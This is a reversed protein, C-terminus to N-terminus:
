SDGGTGNMSVSVEHSGSTVLTDRPLRPVDDSRRVTIEEGGELYTVDLSGVRAVGEVSAVCEELKSLEPFEGFAWGHGEDGGSLPHLYGELAEVVRDKLMSISRAENTGVSCDVSLEAYNPGRVAIKPQPHEVLPAPARESVASRVRDKLETSPLPKERRANPVILLTVWGLAREGSADMGPECKVTALERCANMAVDEFDTATVARGRNRIQRPARDLVTSTSEADAGGDSPLPNEVGDVLPIPSRLESIAGAEVNGESGGGTTVTARVNDEGAPPIKGRQGNGFHVLGNTRDVTYHRDSAASDLFDSVARWNVWFREEGAPTRERRVRTPWRQGLEERESQSLTPSEDVWLDIDTVPAAPCEFTQDHSGDSSGLTADETTERNYAWQTNPYVGQVTPPERSASRGRDVEVADPGDGTPLGEREFEDGTVRARIWHATRGFRSTATTPEPVNLRVIGSETLGATGDRVELADWANRRPDVCYEWEIAPDFTRPYTTEALSLYLTIPGDRLDDDFGFYIAQGEVACAEFPEFGGLGAAVEDDYEGNNRALISEFREGDREYTIWVDGYGPPEPQNTMEGRTGDASIEFEPRGYNGSVLRVRLWHNDHGSVTTAELDDPVTFTVTGPERFTDTGDRELDLRSWGNGDWYEWSTEPPGGFVGAGSADERDDDVADADETSATGGDAALAPSFSVSVEAGRKTLAEESALYFTSPPQPLRGFPHVTEEGDVTLPVDNSLVGDPRIRNGSEDRGVELEIVEIEIAFVAPDDSTSRCRIWRSEVGAIETESTEGDIEFVFELTGDDSTSRAAQLEAQLQGLDTIGEGGAMGDSTSPGTLERWAAEEGEVEGYYEWVLEDDFVERAVTTGVHLTVRSGPELNLVEDHGLYLHHSQRNEGDFLTDSPEGLCDDHCYIADSGPDVSHLGTLSSATAEFGDEQAVEFVVTEGTTSEAIAQTGGPIAVNEELTESVEVTLPLRAPQPPRRSFDFTDLFAIRHKEPVSRLRQIVDMGFESFIYLLTTGVDETTPDWEETYNEALERLDALLEERDRDDLVPGTTM